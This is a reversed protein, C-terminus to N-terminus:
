AFPHSERRSLARASLRADRSLVRALLFFSQQTGGTTWRGVASTFPDRLKKVVNKVTGLPPVAGRLEPQALRHKQPVSRLSGRMPCKEPSKEWQPAFAGILRFPKEPILRRSRTSELDVEDNLSDVKELRGNESGCGLVSSWFVLALSGCTLKDSQRPKQARLESGIPTGNNSQKEPRM